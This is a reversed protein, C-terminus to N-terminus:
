EGLQVKEAKQFAEEGGRPRKGGKASPSPSDTARRKGAAGSTGAEASAM